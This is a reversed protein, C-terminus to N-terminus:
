WRDNPGLLRRPRGQQCRGDGLPAHGRASGRPLGPDVPLKATAKPQVDELTAGSSDVIARVLQPQYVTGGNAVAAAATVLQLPTVELNGQGIAMNYTDGTTWPERKEKLKWQQNPVRGTAEGALPIGTPKGFGFWGLGTSLRDIQLGDFRPDEPKLNVVGEKNGGAVTFFFVNSSVKLADSITILQNDKSTSNPFRQTVSAVYQDQLLLLGPDRVLTTPAVVGDQLAISGVFQKLTSGPPYTGGITRDLLPAQKELEAIATLNPKGSADLPYLLSQLEDGRARDVWVNNDYSPLSVMSLVRGSRPDLAIAVGKTIPDYKGKWPTKPDQGLKVRRADSIAIWRRLLEETKRQFELDVTLVLSNGDRVPRVSNVPGIPRDSADVVLSQMGLDGRLENSMARRSGTKGSVTTPLTPCATPVWPPRSASKSALVPLPTRGGRRQPQRVWSSAPNSSALQCERIRGIYGLMHSISPVRASEPYRRRYDEIVVVGPLSASNESIVLALDHSIDNKVTVTEYRRM